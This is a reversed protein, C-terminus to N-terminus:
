SFGVHFHFYVSVFNKVDELSKSKETVDDGRVETANGELDSNISEVRKERRKNKNKKRDSHRQQVEEEQIEPFIILLYTTRKCIINVLLSLSFLSKLYLYDRILTLVFIILIYEHWGWTNIIRKSNNADNYEDNPM